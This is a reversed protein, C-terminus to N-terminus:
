KTFFISCAQPLSYVSTWSSYTKVHTPALAAFLYLPTTTRFLIVSVVSFMVKGERYFHVIPNYPGPDFQEPTLWPDDGCTARPDDALGEGFCLPTSELRGGEKASRWFGLVKLSSWLGGPLRFTVLCFKMLLVVLIFSLWSTSGLSGKFVNSGRHVTLPESLFVQFRSTFSYDFNSWSFQGFIRIIQHVHTNINYERWYITSFVQAVHINANQM